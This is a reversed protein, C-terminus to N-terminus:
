RGQYTQFPRFLEIEIAIAFELTKPRDRAALTVVPVMMEISRILRM